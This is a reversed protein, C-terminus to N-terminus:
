FEYRLGVTLSAGGIDRLDQYGIFPMVGDAHVPEHSRLTDWVEEDSVDDIDSWRLTLFLSTGDTLDREVGAVVQYGFVDDSVRTDLVSSTGAAALQWDEPQEPDGGVAEVYGDALTRRLFSAFYHSRVRALGAGVGVYPSWASDIGFDYLVNLFLQSSNFDSVRHHPPDHPSWETAKGQLAPNDVASILFASGGEHTRSLFEAEIRLRDWAYGFSASGAIAAGLDFTDSLFARVTTDRCEAGGPAMSPDSYLFRDCRTPHNIGSTSAGIEDSAFTLGLTVYPETRAIESVLVLAVASVLSIRVLRNMFRGEEVERNICQVVLKTRANLLAWYCKRICDM